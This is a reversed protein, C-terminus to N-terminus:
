FKLFLDFVKYFYWCSLRWVFLVWGNKEQDKVLDNTLAITYKNDCFIKTPKNEYHQSESLMKRLWATQTACSGVWYVRDRYYFFCGSRTEKIVDKFTMPNCYSFIYCFLYMSWRNISELKRELVCEYLNKKLVNHDNIM